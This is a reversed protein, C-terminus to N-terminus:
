STAPQATGGNRGIGCTCGILARERTVAQRHLVLAVIMPITVISNYFLHLEVRPVFLQIISSPVTQGALRWGFQAQTLLLLHEIHHWFRIGLALNWWQRSRDAFGHRLGWLAVLMVLAFGYHLWESTILWPFPLGLLGRAASTRWGLAYIQIAQAIHETWHALVVVMFVNLAVRHYRSNLAGPRGAPRSFESATMM